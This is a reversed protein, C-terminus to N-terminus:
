QAASSPGGAEQAVAVLNQACFGIKGTLRHELRAVQHFAARGLHRGPDLIWPSPYQFYQGVYNHWVPVQIPRSFSMVLPEFGEARLMMRLTEETYHVVHEYSDWIGYPVHRRLLQAGRQKLMNWRANPVKVYLVGGPKLFTRVSRLMGRPETVHEFVDSLAVVDFSDRKSAPLEELFCNHVELGLQETAIRHLAPSPEVGVAEWGRERVHRLLMGMNCGVDLFRGRGPRCREILDLEELYNPDRHHSAQKTLILRVEALFRDHDGWYVKEPERVRPSTYILSCTQCRKVGVSRYEVCLTAGTDGGCFPCSVAVVEADSYEFKQTGGGEWDQEIVRM